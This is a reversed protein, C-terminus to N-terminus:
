AQCRQLHTDQTDRFHHARSWWPDPVSTLAFAPDVQSALDSYSEAINYFRSPEVRIENALVPNKPLYFLYETRLMEADDPGQYDDPV